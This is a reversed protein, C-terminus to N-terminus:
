SSRKLARNVGSVVAKLSAVVINKDIGVGFLTSGDALRLEVYAIAAANAGHGMAHERYDAVDFNLGSEKKIADVFGDVPGNGHGHITKRKGDVSVQATLDQDGHDSKSKHEVFAFRGNGELYESEFATWLRSAEVEVGEGDAIAQVVKSFEIQLRRPLDIGHETEMIYAIGGKGSQSNIRVVAEYSRGLDMPDIPLYPV